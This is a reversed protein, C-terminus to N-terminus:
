LADVVRRLFVYTERFVSSEELSQLASLAITRIKDELHFVIVIAAVAILVVATFIMRFVRRERRGLSALRLEAEEPALQGTYALSLIQYRETKM